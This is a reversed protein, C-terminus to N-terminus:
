WKRGVCSEETMGKVAEKVAEKVVENIVEKSM